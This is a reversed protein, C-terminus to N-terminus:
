SKQIASLAWSLLLFVRGTSYWMGDCPSWKSETQFYSLRELESTFM